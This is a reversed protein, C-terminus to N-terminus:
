ANAVQDSVAQDTKGNSISKVKQGGMNCNVNFVAGAQVLLQNTQIDGSIVATERVNLVEKVKLIGEFSGEIVANQCHVEGKIKGQPGVIVKGQCNLDGHVEGDIRIDNTAEITGQIKTGIVLSNISNSSPSSTTGSAMQTKNEKKGGFM